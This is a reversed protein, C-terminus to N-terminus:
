EETAEGSDLLSFLQWQKYFRWSPIKNVTDMDTDQAITTEVIKRIEQDLDRLQNKDTINLIKHLMPDSLAEEPSLSLNIALCINKGLEKYSIKGLLNKTAAARAVLNKLFHTTLKQEIGLSGDQQIWFDFFRIRTITSFETDNLTHGATFYNLCNDKFTVTLDLQKLITTAEFFVKKLTVLDETLFIFERGCRFYRAGPVSALYHDFPQLYVQDLVNSLISNEHGLKRVPFELKENLLVPRIAAQLFSGLEKSSDNSTNAALLHRLQGWLPSSEELSIGDPYDALINHWVFLGASNHKRGRLFATCKKALRLTGEYSCDGTVNNLNNKQLLKELWRAVVARVIRDTICYESEGHPNILVPTFQYAASAVTQALYQAIKVKDFYFNSFRVGKQELNYLQATSALKKELSEIEDQYFKSDFLM